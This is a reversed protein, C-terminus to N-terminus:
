CWGGVPRGGTRGHWPSTVQRGLGGSRAPSCTNGKGKRSTLWFKQEGCTSGSLRGFGFRSCLLAPHVIRHGGNVKWSTCFTSLFSDLTRTPTSMSGRWQTTWSVTQLRGTGRSTDYSNSGVIDAGGDLTFAVGSLHQAYRFAEEVIQWDGAEFAWSHRSLRDALGNLVGSIHAAGVELTRARCFGSLQASIGRLETAMTGQRNCISMSTTNDTRWLM